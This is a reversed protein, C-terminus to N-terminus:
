QGAREAALQVAAAKEPQGLHDYWWERLPLQCQSLDLGQWLAAARDIEGAIAYSEGLLLRTAHQDSAAAAELHQRAAAEEGRSLAIQGLRRNATVNAPDLALAAEFQAVAPGLDVEASRRLADQIPWEPWEYVGLEARGQAVAGLNAQFAARISPLLALVLALTLALIFYRAWFYSASSRSCKCRRQAEACTCTNVSIITNKIEAWIGSELNM